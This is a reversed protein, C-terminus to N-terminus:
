GDFRAKDYTTSVHRQQACVDLFMYGDADHRRGSRVLRDSDCNEGSLFEVVVDADIRTDCYERVDVVRLMRERYLCEHRHM